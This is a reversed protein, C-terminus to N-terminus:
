SSAVRKRGAHRAVLGLFEIAQRGRHLAVKAGHQFVALAHHSCNPHFMSARELHRGLAFFPLREGRLLPHERSARTEDPVGAHVDFARRAATPLVMTM